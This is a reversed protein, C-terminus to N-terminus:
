FFIKFKFILLITVFLPPIRHLYKCIVCLYGSPWEVLAVPKVKPYINNKPKEKFIETEM